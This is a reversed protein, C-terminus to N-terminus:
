VGRALTWVSVEEVGGQMLVQGCASATAGTTLVDDLIVVKKISSPIAIGAVFARRVNENREKRGLTTQTHTPQHRQIWNSFVPIGTARSLHMALRHSQNFEREREKLPHLPVPVIADWTQGALVPGAVSCLWGALLPEFWLARQYKYRHILELCVGTAALVSQAQQFCLSLDRCNSCEFSMETGAEFPLGCRRCRPGHIWRVRSQCTQCVYGDGCNAEEEECLQCVEPFVWAFLAERLALLCAPTM